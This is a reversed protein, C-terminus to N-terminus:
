SVVEFRRSREGLEFGVAMSEKAIRPIESLLSILGEEAFIKYYEETLAATEAAGVVERQLDAGERFGAELGELFDFLLSEGGGVVASQADATTKATTAKVGSVQSIFEWATAKLRNVTALVSLIKTRIEM